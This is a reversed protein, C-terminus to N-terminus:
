SYLSAFGSSSSYHLCVKPMAFASRLRLRFLFIVVFLISKVPLKMMCFVTSQDSRLSPIVMGTDAHASSFAGVVVADDVLVIGAEVAALELKLERVALHQFQLQILM